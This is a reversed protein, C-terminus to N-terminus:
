PAFYGSADIVLDTTAYSFIKFAGDASGLGVIFHRNIIQNTTYNSTAVLPQTTLSSPFFTFYGGGAPSVTTANGLLSQANNPITCAGGAGQTRIVQGTLPAAPLYCGVPEGARTELLRVPTPLPSFWLGQGNLDTTDASYYGLVDIVLHTTSTTYIMFQGTSALRVTFQANLIEGNYYHSSYTASRAIGQAYLTLYGEAPDVSTANGVLAQATAPITVGNYTLNRGVQPTDTNAPLKAGPTIYGSEGPRTELLRIPAPLPHFYLGGASPPAYYGTIDIAVDTTFYAFINFSGANAGGSALKVTFHDHVIDNAGSNITAVLPKPVDSPYFTLYAFGSQFTTVNGALAQATAPIGCTGRGLQIRSASGALPANPRYCASPTANTRTDLLRVPAPLPYFQLRTEETLSIQYNGSQGPAFANVVVYYIGAQPLAFFGSHAPIRANTGGGGDDDQTIVMFNSDLLLLYVDLPTSGTSSTSNLSLAVKQNQAGTFKYIDTLTNDGIFTSCDGASLTGTLWEGMNITPALTPDCPDVSLAQKSATRPDSREPKTLRQDFLREGLTKKPSSLSKKTPRQPDQTTQTFGRAGYVSLALTFGLTVLCFISGWRFLRHQMANIRIAFQM